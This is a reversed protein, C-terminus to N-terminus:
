GEDIDGDDMDETLLEMCRRSRCDLWYEKLEKLVGFDVDAILLECRLEDSREEFPPSPVKEDMGLLCIRKVNPFAKYVTVGPRLKNTVVKDVPNYHGSLSYLSHQKHIRFHKRADKFLSFRQPYIPSPDPNNSSVSDQMAERGYMGVQRRGKNPARMLFLSGVSDLENKERFKNILFETDRSIFLATVEQDLILAHYATIPDMIFFKFAGGEAWMRYAYVQRGSYFMWIMGGFFTGYALIKSSDNAFKAFMRPTGTEGILRHNDVDRSDSSRYRWMGETYPYHEELFM